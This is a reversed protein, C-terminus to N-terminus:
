DDHTSRDLALEWGRPGIRRRPPRLAAPNTDATRERAPIVFVPLHTRPPTAATAREGPMPLIGSHLSLLRVPRLTRTTTTRSAVGVLVRGRAEWVLAPPLVLALWPRIWPLILDGSVPVREPHARGTGTASFTTPGRDSRAMAECSACCPRTRATRRRCRSRRANRRSWRGFAPPPANARSSSRLRSTLAKVVIRRSSAIASASARSAPSHPM